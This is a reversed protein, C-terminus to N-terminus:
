RDDNRNYVQEWTQFTLVMKILKFTKVLLRVLTNILRKKPYIIEILQYCILSQATLFFGSVNRRSIEDGKPKRRLLAIKKFM